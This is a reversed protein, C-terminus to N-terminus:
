PMTVELEDGKNYLRKGALHMKLKVVWELRDIDQDDLIPMRGFRKIEEDTELWPYQQPLIQKATEFSKNYLEQEGEKWGENEEKGALHALLDSSQPFEEILGRNDFYVAIIATIPFLQTKM